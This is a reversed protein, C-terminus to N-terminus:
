KPVAGLYRSVYDLSEQSYQNVMLLSVLRQSHTRHLAFLCFVCQPTSSSLLKQGANAITSSREASGPTARWTNFSVKFLTKQKKSTGHTDKTNVGARKGDASLHKYQLYLGIHHHLLLWCEADYTGRANTLLTAEWRSYCSKDRHGQPKLVINCHSRWSGSLVVALHWQNDLRFATEVIQM